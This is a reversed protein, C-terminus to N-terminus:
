ECEDLKDAHPPRHHRMKWTVIAAWVNVATLAAFCISVPWIGEYAAVVATAAGIIASAGYIPSM